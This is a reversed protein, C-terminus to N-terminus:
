LMANRSSSRFGDLDLAIYTFGLELFRGKITARNERVLDFDEALVEIQSPSGHHRVRLVRPGIGLLFDEATEVQRLKDATVSEGYPIRSALRPMALKDAIELGYYLCIARIDRKDM